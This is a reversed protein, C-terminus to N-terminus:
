EYGSQGAEPKAEASSGKSKSAEGRAEEIVEKQVKIENILEEWSTKAGDRFKEDSWIIDAQCRGYGKGAAGWGFALDGEKLDRLVLALLGLAWPQHELRSEEVEITGALKPSVIGLANYKAGAKGGGTFRDVALMEQTIYEYDGALLTFDSIRLPSRWGPAGFLQCALCLKEKVEKLEKVPKCALDPIEPRCAIHHHIKSQLKPELWQDDDVDLMTRLIREAQTRL